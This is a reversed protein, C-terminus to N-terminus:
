RGGTFWRQVGNVATGLVPVRATAMNVYPAVKDYLQTWATKHYFSTSGYTFKFRFCTNDACHYRSRLFTWVLYLRGISRSRTFLEFFTLFGLGIEMTACLMLAQAMNDYLTGYAVDAKVRKWLETSSFLKDYFSAAQFVSLIAPPVLFLMQPAGTFGAMCLSLYQFNNSTIVPKFATRVGELSTLAPRNPAAIGQSALLYCRFGFAAIASILSGRYAWLRLAGPLLPVLYVLTCLVVSTCTVGFVRSKFDM